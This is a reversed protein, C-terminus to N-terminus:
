TLVPSLGWNVQFGAADEGAEGIRTARRVPTGTLGYPAVLLPAPAGTTQVHIVL